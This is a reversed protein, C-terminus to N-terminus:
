AQHTAERGSRIVPARQESLELAVGRAQLRFSLEM